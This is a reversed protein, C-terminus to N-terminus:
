AYGRIFAGVPAVLQDGLRELDTRPVTPEVSFPVGVAIGQQQGLPRNTAVNDWRELGHQRGSGAEQGKNHDLQRVWSEVEPNVTHLGYQSEAWVKNYSANDIREAAEYLGDMDDSISNATLDSVDNPPAVRNGALESTLEEYRLKAADIGSLRTTDMNMVFSSDHHRTDNVANASPPMQDLRTYLAPRGSTLWFDPMAAARTRKALHGPEATGVNQLEENNRKEQPPPARHADVQMAEETVPM